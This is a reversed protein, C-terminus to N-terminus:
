VLAREVKAALDREDLFTACSHQRLVREKFDNLKALCAPDTEVMSARVPADQDMVFIFLEKDSAVAQQYELETMSLGTGADVFGYRMGLIGLYSESEVVRRRIMEAPAAAEPTFDEMGVYIRNLRELVGRVAQRHGLLDKSTSSVFVSGEVAQSPSRRGGGVQSQYMERLSAIHELQERLLAIRPADLVDGTVLKVLESELGARREDLQTIVRRIGNLRDVDGRSQEIGLGLDSVADLAFTASTFADVFRVLADQSAEENRGKLWLEIRMGRPDHVLASFIAEVMQCAVTDIPMRASGSGIAPFAVSSCGLLPALELVRRTATRVIVEAGINVDSWFDGITIAHLIYKAPLAGASSVVVDGVRRPVLKRVESLIEPGAARAIARSVGGGMTILFDDSSVLIDCSSTTIDGFFITVTSQGVQIIRPDTM